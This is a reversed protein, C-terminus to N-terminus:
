CFIRRQTKNERQGPKPMIVTRQGAVQHRELELVVGLEQKNSIRKYTEDRGEPVLKSLTHTHTENNHSKENYHSLIENYHNLIENNHSLIENNHNLTMTIIKRM